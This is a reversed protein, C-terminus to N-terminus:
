CFFRDTGLGHIITSESQLTGQELQVRCTSNVVPPVGVLDKFLGTRGVISVGPNNLLDAFSGTYAVNSFANSSFAYKKCVGKNTLIIEKDCM